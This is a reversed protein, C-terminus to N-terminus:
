CISAGQFSILVSFGSHSIINLLPWVCVFDAQLRGILVLLGAEKTIRQDPMQSLSKQVDKPNNGVLNTSQQLRGVRFIPCQPHWMWHKVFFFFFLFVVPLSISDTGWPETSYTHPPVLGWTQAHTCVPPLVLDM